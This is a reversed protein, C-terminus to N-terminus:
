RSLLSAYGERFTSYRPQWGLAAKIKANSIVRDSTVTRRGGAPEGTFRPPALDLEGALWNVIEAKTASGTMPSM